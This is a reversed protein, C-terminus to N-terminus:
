EPEGEPTQENISETVRNEAKERIMRSEISKAMSSYPSQRNLERSVDLRLEQPVLSLYLAYYRRAKQRAEKSGESMLSRYQRLVRVHEEITESKDKFYTIQQSFNDMEQIPIRFLTALADGKTLDEYLIGPKRSKLIGLEWIDRANLVNRISSINKAFDEIEASTFPLFDEDESLKGLPDDSLDLALAEVLESFDGMVRIGMSVSAGGLFDVISTDGYKSNGTVTDFLDGWFGAVSAVDTFRTEEGTLAFIFGDVLGRDFLAGLPEEEFTPSEGKSAKLRENLEELIYVGGAGFLAFQGALLRVRDAATLENRGLLLEPWRTMYSWFQTVLSVPGKQWAARSNSGMNFALDWAMGAHKERFAQGTLNPHRQRTKKWAVQWAFIRNFIEAENFPTRGAELFKSVQNKNIGSVSQLSFEGKAQHGIVSTFGSQRLALIMDVFEDVNEAGAVSSLIDSDVLTKRLQAPDFTGGVFVRVLPYTVFARASAVADVASLSIASTIQLPFQAINFLGLAADFMAQKLGYSFDTSALKNAASAAYQSFKNTGKVDDLSNALNRMGTKAAEAIQNDWNYIRGLVALQNKAQAISRSDAEQRWISRTGINNMNDYLRRILSEYDTATTPDPLKIIKGFTKFFQGAARAKFPAISVIQAAQSLSRDLAEFPDLVPLENGEVDLMREGRRGYYLRSPSEMTTEFASIDTDVNDLNVGKTQYISPSQRDGVIEVPHTPDFYPEDLKGYRWNEIQQFLKSTTIGQVNKSKLIKTIQGKLSGESLAGNRYKQAAERIENLADVYDKMESKTAGGAFVRPQMLLPEGTDGQTRQVAQKAWFQVQSGYEQHSGGGKYPLQVPDLRSIEMRDPTAIIHKVMVEGNPTQVWRPENLTIVYKGQHDSPTYSRESAGGLAEGTDMDYVRGKTLQPPPTRYVLANSPELSFSLVDEELKPIEVTQFGKLSLRHVKESNRLFYDIDSAEKYAHAGDIFRSPVRTTHPFKKAYAKELEADTFWRGERRQKEAIERYLGKERSKLKNIRPVIHRKLVQLYTNRNSEAVGSLNHLATDSLNRAGLLMRGVPGTWPRNQPMPSWSGQVSIPVDVEVYYMDKKETISVKPGVVEDYEAQADDLEKRAKDVRSRSQNSEKTSPGTHSRFESEAKTFEAQAADRKAIADLIKPDTIEPGESTRLKFLTDDERLFTSISDLPNKFSYNGSGRARPAYSGRGVDSLSVDLAKAADHHTYINGNFFVTNGERTALVKVNGWEKFLSPADKPSPNVVFDLQLSEDGSLTRNIDEFDPDKDPTVVYKSVPVEVDKTVTKVDSPSLGLSEALKEAGKLTAFGERGSGLVAVVGPTEIGSAETRNEVRVDLVKRRGPLSKEFDEVTKSILDNQQSPTMAGIDPSRDRFTKMVEETQELIDIAAPGSSIADEPLVGPTVASALAEEAVEEKTTGTPSPIEKKAANLELSLVRQGLGQGTKSLKLLSGSTRAAGYAIGAIFPVTDVADLASVGFAEYRNIGYVYAAINEQLLMKNTWGGVSAQDVLKELTEPWLEIQEEPPRDRFADSEKKLQTGSQVTAGRAIEGAFTVDEDEVGGRSAAAVTPLLMFQSMDSLFSGLTMGDVHGEDLAIQMLANELARRNKSEEVVNFPKRDLAELEEPGATSRVLTELSDVVEGESLMVNSANVAERAMESAIDPYESSIATTGMLRNYRARLARQDRLSLISEQNDQNLYTSLESGLQNVDGELRTIADIRKEASVREDDITEEPAPFASSLSAQSKQGFASAIVSM